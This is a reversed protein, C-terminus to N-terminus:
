NPYAPLQELLRPPEPPSVAWCPWQLGNTLVLFPAQYVSQYQLAQQVVAQSLRIEPAKCEVLLYPQGSRDLVVIDSRKALSNYRLGSEVSILSAPYSLGSVLYHLFHQRVWEEPTLVVFKRRFADFILLKGKNERIKGAFPPLELTPLSFQM